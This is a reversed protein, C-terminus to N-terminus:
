TSTKQAFTVFTETKKRPEPTTNPPTLPDSMPPSPPLPLVRLLRTQAAMPPEVAAEGLPTRLRKTGCTNGRYKISQLSTLVAITCYSKCNQVRKITRHHEFSHIANKVNRNYSMPIVGMRIAKLLNPLMQCNVKLRHLPILDPRNQHILVSMSSVLRHINCLTRTCKLLADNNSLLRCLLLM